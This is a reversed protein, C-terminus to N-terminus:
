PDLRVPLDAVVAFGGDPRDRAELTGGVAAARERMGPIGQGGGAPAGDRAPVVTTPRGHRGTGVGDDTVRLRLRGDAVSAVIEARRASAHRLM